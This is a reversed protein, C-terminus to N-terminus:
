GPTPVDKADDLLCARLADLRDAVARDGLQHDYDYTAVRAQPAAEAYLAPVPEAVYEDKTAWQLFLRDGYSGAASLPSMSAFGRAYAERDVDEHPWYTLFWNEWGADPAAAVLLKAAPDRLLLAYMAGYDHSVVATNAVDVEPLGRLAALAGEVVQLQGRVRASDDPSGSPRARWPFDGQPLLSVVGDRALDVAEPLFQHMNGRNHGLWHLWLVGPAGARRAHEPPRVVLAETAGGLTVHDVTIGAVKTEVHADHPSLM